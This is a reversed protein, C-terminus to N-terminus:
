SPSVDNLITEGHFVVERSVTTLFKSANDESCVKALCKSGNDESSIVNLYWMVWIVYRMRCIRGELWYGNYQISLHSTMARKEVTSGCWLVRVLELMSMELRCLQNWVTKHIIIHQSVNAFWFSRTDNQRRFISDILTEYWKRLWVCLIHRIM